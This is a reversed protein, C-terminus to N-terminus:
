SRQIPIKRAAAQGEDVPIRVELIGDKYTAKVDEETAGAPLPVTRTFSGYRFESRYRGKEEVKTEQRREARLHLTQDSVDIEVDKDPDLGPMEARVVLTKDEEFEEVRMPEVEELLRTRWLDPWRPPFPWDEFWRSFWDHPALLTERKELEAM